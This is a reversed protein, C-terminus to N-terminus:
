IEVKIFRLLERVYLSLIIGRETFSSWFFMEFRHKLPKLTDGLKM